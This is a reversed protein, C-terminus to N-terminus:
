YAGTRFFFSSAQPLLTYWQRYTPEKQLKRRARLTEHPSTYFPRKLRAACTNHAKRTRGRSAWSSLSPPLSRSSLSWHWYYDVDIIISPSLSPSLLSRHRSDHHYGKFIALLLLKWWPAHSSPPPFKHCNFCLFNSWLYKEQFTCFNCKKLVAHCFTYWTSFYWIKPM